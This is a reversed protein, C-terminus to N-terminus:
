ERLPRGPGSLSNPLDQLRDQESTDDDPTISSDRGDPLVIVAFHRYSHRVCSCPLLTSWPAACLCRAGSVLSPLCFLSFNCFPSVSRCSEDLHGLEADRSVGRRRRYPQVKQEDWDRNRRLVELVSEVLIGGNVGCMVKHKASGNPDANANAFRTQRQGAASSSSTARTWNLEFSVM